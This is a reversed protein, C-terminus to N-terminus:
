GRKETNRYRTSGKINRQLNSTGLRACVKYEANCQITDDSEKKLQCVLYDIKEDTDSAVNKILKSVKKFCDSPKTYSTSAMEYKARSGHQFSLSFHTVYPFPFIHLNTLKVINRWGM